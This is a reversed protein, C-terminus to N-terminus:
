RLRTIKSLCESECTLSLDQFSPCHGFMTWFQVSPLLVGTPTFYILPHLFKLMQTIQLATPAVCAGVLLWSEVMMLCYVLATIHEQFKTDPTLEGNSQKQIGSKQHKFQTRTALCVYQWVSQENKPQTLFDTHIRDTTVLIILQFTEYEGQTQGGFVVVEGSPLVVSSCFVRRRSLNGVRRIIPDMGKRTMDIVHTVRRGSGSDYNAAGGLTLIKGVDFVVANGNMTDVSGRLKAISKVEQRRPYIWHMRKSPGAQLIRGDPSQFLWLHNDSRYLGMEDDTVLGDTTIKPFITWNRNHPDWIEGQKLGVGGSWSGGLTFVSGDSLPTMSHYGRPIAMPPEKTWQNTKPHYMTVHASDAGGTILIRGDSLVATGPCFMDHGTKRVIAHRTIGNQPNFIGTHTFGKRSNFERPKFASWLLVKGDPLNAAAAAVLPTKYIKSWKGKTAVVTGRIGLLLCRIIPWKM